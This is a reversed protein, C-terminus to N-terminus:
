ASPAAPPSSATQPFTARFATLNAGTESEPIAFVVLAFRGKFETDELVEKYLRSIVAPENGFASLVLSDNNNMIAARFMAKMKNRTGELYEEQTLPKNFGPGPTCNYAASSIVDATFAEPVKANTADNNFFTVKPTVIVGFPHIPYFSPNAKKAAELGEYLNSRLCLQEEQGSTGGALFDGGPITDNAMNLVAPNGYHEQVIKQAMQASTLPVVLFKTEFKNKNEGLSTALVEPTKQFFHIFECLKKTAAAHNTQSIKRVDKAVADQAGNAANPDQTQSPTVPATPPKAPQAPQAQKVNTMEGDKEPGDEPHKERKKRTREHIRDQVAFISPPSKKVCDSGIKSAEQIFSDDEADPPSTLLFLLHYTGLLFMLTLPLVTAVVTFVGIVPAAFVAAVVIGAFVVFAAVRVATLASVGKWKLRRLHETNQWEVSAPKWKNPTHQLQPILAAIPIKSLVYKIKEILTIDSFVRDKEPKQETKQSSPVTPKSVKSPM